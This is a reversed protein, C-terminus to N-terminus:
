AEKRGGGRAGPRAHQRLRAIHLSEAKREGAADRDVTYRLSLSFNFGHRNWM